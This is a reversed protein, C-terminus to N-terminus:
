RSKKAKGSASEWDIVPRMWRSWSKDTASGVCKWGMGRPPVISFVSSRGRRIKLSRTRTREYGNEVVVWLTQPVACDSSFQHEHGFRDVHLRYTKINECSSQM